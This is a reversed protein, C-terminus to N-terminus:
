QTVVSGVSMAVVGVKFAIGAKDFQTVFQIGVPPYRGVQVKSRNSAELGPVVSFGM